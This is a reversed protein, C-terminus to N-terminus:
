GDVLVRDIAQRAQVGPDVFRVGAIKHGPGCGRRSVHRVEVTVAVGM